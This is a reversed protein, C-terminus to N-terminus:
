DVQVVSGSGSIKTNVTPSGKYRVRGSGSLKADIKDLVTVECKGSGSIDIDATKTALGFAKINGSGSIDIKQFEADGNLEMNVSGSIDTEITQAGKVNLYISSNGSADINLNDVQWDTLSRVSNAGSVSIGTLQPTTLYIRVPKQIKVRNKEFEIYLKNNRVQTSVETLVNEQGELLIDKTPGQSLYIEFEGGASVADFNGVPRTRSVTDGRGRLVEDDCSTLTLLTAAFLLAINRKKILYNKM